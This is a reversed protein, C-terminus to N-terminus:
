EAEAPLEQEVIQAFMGAGYPIAADNFM